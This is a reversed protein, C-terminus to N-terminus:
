RGPVQSDGPELSLPALIEEVTKRLPVFRADLVKVARAHHPNKVYRYRGESKGAVLRYTGGGSVSLTMAFSPKELGWESSRSNAGVFEDIAFQNACDVIRAAIQNPISRAVPYVMRIGWASDRELRYEHITGSSDRWQVQLREIRTSYFDPFLSRDTWDLWRNSIWAFAGHGLAVQSTSEDRWYTSDDGDVWLEVHGTSTTDWHWRTTDAEFRHAPLTNLFTFRSTKGSPLTWLVTRKDAPDALGADQAPVVKSLTRLSRLQALATDIREQLVPFRDGATVWGKPTRILTATDGYQVMRLSEMPGPVAPKAGVGYSLGLVHILALAMWKRATASLLDGYRM